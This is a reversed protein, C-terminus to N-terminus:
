RAETVFRLSVTEGRAEYDQAGRPLWTRIEVRATRHSPLTFTDSGRRRLEGLSGSFITLGRTRVRFALAGDLSHDRPVARLRVVLASATANRATVVRELAPSAPVLSARGLPAVAPQLDLDNSRAAVLTVVAATASAGRPVMWGALLAVALAAGMLAAGVETTSRVRGNM